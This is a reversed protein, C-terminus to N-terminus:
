IRTMLANNGRPFMIGETVLCCWAPRRQCTIGAPFDWCLLAGVAGPGWCSAVLPSCLGGFPEPLDPSQERGLWAPSHYGLSHSHWPAGLVFVLLKPRM